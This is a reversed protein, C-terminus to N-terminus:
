AEAAQSQLTAGNAALRGLLKRLQKWEAESFGRLFDVYPDRGRSVTDSM